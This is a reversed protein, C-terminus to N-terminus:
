TTTRRPPSPSSRLLPLCQSIPFSTLFSTLFSQPVIKPSTHLQPVLISLKLLSPCSYVTNDCLLPHLQPHQLPFFSLALFSFPFYVVRTSDTTSPSPALSCSASEEWSWIQSRICYFPLKSGLSMFSRFSRTLLINLCSQMSYEARARLALFPTSQAHTGYSM